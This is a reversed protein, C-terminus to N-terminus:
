SRTDLKVVFAQGTPLVIPVELRAAFFEDVADREGRCTPFGYDDFLLIGGPVLRDYFYECCSLTTQFLDVDVHVFGYLRDPVNRFAQPIWGEHIETRYAYGRMIEEVARRSASGFNGREYFVDHTMDPEPLGVFSDFLVLRNQTSETTAALLLATGGWYVGCEAFAEGLHRAHLALSRLMYLRDPGDLSLTLADTCDGTALLQDVWPSYLPHRAIWRVYLNADPMQAAFVLEPNPEVDGRPPGPM